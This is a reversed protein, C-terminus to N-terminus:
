AQSCCTLSDSSHQFSSAPRVRRAAAATRPLRPCDVAALGAAAVGPKCHRHVQLVGTVSSVWVGQEGEFASDVVSALPRGALRRPPPHASTLARNPNACAPWSASASRNRNYPVAWFAAPPKTPRLFCRPEGSPQAFGSHRGRRAHGPGVGSGRCRTIAPLTNLASGPGGPRGPLSAGRQAAAPRAGRGERSM